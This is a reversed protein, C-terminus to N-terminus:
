GDGAPEGSSEDEGYEEDRRSGGRGSPPPRDSLIYGVRRVTHLLEPGGTSQLKSRLYSVYVDIVNNEPDFPASWVARSLEDRSVPSGARRMLYELVAYERRTLSLPTGNRTIQHAVPDCALDGVRLLPAGGQSRRLLARVRALLEDYNFPKPLYDDAGSEFGELRDAVTAHATLMLIPAHVERARLDRALEYGTRTPLGVDLIILGPRHEVAATFGEDGDAATLVAYGSDSLSRRLVERLERKDEIILITIPRDADSM